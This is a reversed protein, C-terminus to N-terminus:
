SATQDKGLAQPADLLASLAYVHALAGQSVGLFADLRALLPQFKVLSSM